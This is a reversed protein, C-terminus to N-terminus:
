WKVSSSRLVAAESDSDPATDFACTGVSVWEMEFYVSTFALEFTPADSSVPRVCVSITGATAM